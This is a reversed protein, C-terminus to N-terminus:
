CNKSGSQAHIVIPTLESRIRRVPAKTIL